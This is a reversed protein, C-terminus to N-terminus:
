TAASDAAAAPNPHQTEPRKAFDAFLASFVNVISRSLSLMVGTAFQM